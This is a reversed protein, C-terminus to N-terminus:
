KMKMPYKFVPSPSLPPSQPEFSDGPGGRSRGSAAIFFALRSQLRYVKKRSMACYM